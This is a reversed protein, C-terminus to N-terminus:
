RSTVGAVIRLAQGQSRVYGSIAPNPGIYALDLQEAFIAEIVSPGANFIKWEVKAEPAMAKAFWGNAQAIVAQSHTINPFHGARIVVPANQARLAVSALLILFSTEWVKKM